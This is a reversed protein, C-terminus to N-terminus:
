AVRQRKLLVIAAVAVGEIALRMGRTGGRMALAVRAAAGFAAATIAMRAASVTPDETM